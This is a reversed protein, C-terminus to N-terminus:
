EVENPPAHGVRAVGLVNQLVNEVLQQFRIAQEHRDLVDGAPQKAHRAIADDIQEAFFPRFAEAIGGDRVLVVFQAGSNRRLGSAHAM